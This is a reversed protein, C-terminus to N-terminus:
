TWGEPVRDKPFRLTREQHYTKDGTQPIDVKQGPKTRGDETIRRTNDQADNPIITVKVPTKKQQLWRSITVKM